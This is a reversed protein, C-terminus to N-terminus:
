VKMGVARNWHCLASAEDRALLSRLEAAARRAQPETALSHSKLLSAAGEVIAAVNEVWLRFHPTDATHTEAQASLTVSRFGARKFLGFLRRGVLADGGLLHQLAVFQPLLAEFAPCEPDFALMNCDNEQVFARGEPKLVRRMERLAAEPDRVHELVYRCYVVDFADDAFPLHHADGPLLRLNSADARAQALQNPSYEIGVVEGQPVRQAVASALIGLGSGVELVRDAPEIELFELFPGNTLANLRALRAQEEQDTGHIYHADTM